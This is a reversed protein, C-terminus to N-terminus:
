WWITDSAWLLYKKESNEQLPLLIFTLSILMLSSIYLSAGIVSCCAIANSCTYKRPYLTAVKVCLRINTGLLWFYFMLAFLSFSNNDFLVIQMLGNVHLMTFCCVINKWMQIDNTSRINICLSFDFFDQGHGLLAKFTIVYVCGIVSLRSLATYTSCM